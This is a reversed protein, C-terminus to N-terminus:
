KSTFPASSIVAEKDEDVSGSSRGDIGITVTGSDGNLDRLLLKGFEPILNKRRQSLENDADIVEDVIQDGESEFLWKLKSPTITPDIHKADLANTM